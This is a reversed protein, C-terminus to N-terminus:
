GWDLAAGSRLIADFEATFSHAGAGHLSRGPLIHLAARNGKIGQILIRSAPMQDRPHLPMIRLAGFRRSLAALVEPLADARHIMTLSGGDRAMAAAFRVWPEISEPPMAHAGDKLPDAARTGTGHAYFPPNALVHDFSNTEAALAAIKSLPQMLDATIVRCRDELANARANGVALAALLPDREILTVRLGPCRRAAALGVVGVGSGCDLVRAGLGTPAPCAAALLVADLGARYGTAPQRMKLTGGLFEDETTALAALDPSASM